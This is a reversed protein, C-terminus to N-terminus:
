LDEVPLCEVSGGKRGLKRPKVKGDLGGCQVARVTAQIWFRHLSRM